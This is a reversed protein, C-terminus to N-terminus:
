LVPPCFHSFSKQVLGGPWVPRRPLRAFLSAATAIAAAHQADPVQPSVEASAVVNPTVEAALQAAKQPTQFHM